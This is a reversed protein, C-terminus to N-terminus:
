LKLKSRTVPGVIGDIDIKAAKQFAKVADLTYLGFVGDLGYKGLDYKLRNLHWQVWKVDNGSAGKALNKSPEAYPNKPVTVSPPPTPAPTPPTVPKPAPFVKEIGNFIARAMKNIDLMAMDSASDIFACEVLVAPANTMRIIGFWDRGQDNLRTKVGRNKFGLAAIANVIATALEKSKGGVFSYFVETGYGGGANFHIEVVGDVKQDNALKADANLDRNKDTTRNNIVTHGSKRLLDTVALTVALNLDKEKLNGSIAGPEAGGHGAFIALKALFIM